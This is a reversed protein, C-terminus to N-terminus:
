NSGKLIELPKAFSLEKMLDEWLTEQLAKGTPEYMMQPFPKVKGEGVFSGHSETGKVAVADVYSRAGTAVKRGVIPKAIAMWFQEIKSRNGDSGFETGRCAGPNPFNVIVEEPSVYQSLKDVFMILFLKSIQYAGNSSFNTPNDVVDWISDSTGTWEAWYSMDSGVLALHAPGSTGRKAKLVPILLIALLATSLYNIQSTMEHKSEESREFQPRSLGANLIAIDLQPLTECWKVFNQISKYSAMDVISVEIKAQPFENQLKKAAADGRAQNRVAIILHSLNLALLQRACEFGLGVNSGTIFATQGSLNITKPIKPVGEIFQRSLFALPSAEWAANHKLQASM